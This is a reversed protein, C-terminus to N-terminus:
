IYYFVSSLNLKSRLKRKYAIMKIAKNAFDILLDFFLSIRKQTISSYLDNVFQEVENQKDTKKRMESTFIEKM